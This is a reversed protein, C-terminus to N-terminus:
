PSYVGWSSYCGGVRDDRPLDYILQEDEPEEDFWRSSGRYCLVTEIEKETPVFEGGGCIVEGSEQQRCMKLLQIEKESLVMKTKLNNKESPPKIESKSSQVLDKEDDSVDISTSEGNFLEKEDKVGGFKSCKAKALIREITSTSVGYKESLEIITLDTKLRDSCVKRMTNPSLKTKHNM